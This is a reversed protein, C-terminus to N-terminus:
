ARRQLGFQEPGQLLTSNASQSPPFRERKVHAEYGGRISVDAFFDSQSPEPLLPEAAVAFPLFLSEFLQFLLEELFRDVLLASIQGKSCLFEAGGARCQVAKDSLM